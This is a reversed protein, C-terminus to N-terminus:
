LPVLAPGWIGHGGAEQQMDCLCLSLVWPMPCATHTSDVEAQRISDQTVKLLDKGIRLVGTEVDM